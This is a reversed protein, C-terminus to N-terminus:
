GAYDGRSRWGEIPLAFKKVLRSTFPQESLRAVRLDHPFRKIDLRSGPPVDCTRFGDCCVVADVPSDLELRVLSDPALVMPRAFLAHASLPVVQYAELQPWMVPGGASFAYATSGTPTSVLIGDCGWRSVPLGDISVLVDIMKMRQAKELSVENVAISTWSPTTRGEEFLEVEITMRKELVFDGTVVHNVLEPIQAMELEALFGVHGLNVGLVPIDFELAKEAARLITGDGGFVVIVEAQTLTEDDIDVLHADPVRRQIQDRSETLVLCEVQTPLEEIFQCAADLAPIRATHIWVAIRRSSSSNM